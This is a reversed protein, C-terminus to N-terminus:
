TSRSPNPAPAAPNKANKNWADVASRRPLIARPRDRRDRRELREVRETLELIIRVGALNIKQRRTLDLITALRDLDDESYLRTNGGSRAPRLLGAREYIRLTQPHVDYAEAVRSIRWPLDVTNQRRRGTM